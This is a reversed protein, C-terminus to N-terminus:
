PRRRREEFLRNRPEDEIVCKCVFALVSILRDDELCRLQHIINAVTKLESRSLRLSESM